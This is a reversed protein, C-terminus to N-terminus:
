LGQDIGQAEAGGPGGAERREHLAAREGSRGRLYRRGLVLSVGGQSAPTRQGPGQDVQHQAEEPSYGGPRNGAYDIEGETSSYNRLPPAAPRV